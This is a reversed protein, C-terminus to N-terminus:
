KSHSKAQKAQQAYRQLFQESTQQPLNYIQYEIIGFLILILGVLRLFRIQAKDVRNALNVMSHAISRLGSHIEPLDQANKSTSLNDLQRSIHNINNSLTVLDKKQETKNAAIAAMMEAKLQKLRTEQADELDAFIKYFDEIEM